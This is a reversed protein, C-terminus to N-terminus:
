CGQAFLDLYSFFDDADCDGDGDIDCVGTNGGAFADLYDFFDDADADGDGDLDAPCGSACEPGSLNLQFEIENFSFGNVRILYKQGGLVDFTMTPWLGQCSDFDCAIENSVDGPCATHASLYFSWNSGCGDVTVTGDTAPTYSYWIDKNLDPFPSCTSRGDTTAGYTNGFVTGPCIELADVCNDPLIFPDCADGIGDGDADAQDANATHPCNDDIDPIGDGDSDFDASIDVAYLYGFDADGAFGSAFYATTGDSSFAGLMGAFQFFGAEDELDFQWFRDGHSAIDYGRIWQSAGFGVAGSTLLQTDDPTVTYGGLMGETSPQWWNTSGDGNLSWWDIGLWDGVFIEGTSAIAAGGLLSGDGPHETIWQLDADPSLSMMGIQAWRIILSGNPHITPASGVALGLDASYWLLDGDFDYTRITPPRSLRRFVTVYARDDAFQITTYSPGRLRIVPYEGRTAWRLNGDPDLSFTGLAEPEDETDMAAYINGDPGVNPGAALDLGPRPNDFRWKLTGNPNVAAILSGGTIITGDPLFSVPRGGGVGALTWLLEGTPSFAYLRNFDSTYITGDPAVTAERALSAGELRHKWLVRDDANAQTSLTAIGAAALGLGITVGRLAPKLSKYGAFM